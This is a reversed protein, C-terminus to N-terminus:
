ARNRLTPIYMCRVYKPRCSLMDPLSIKIFYYSQLTFIYVLTTLSFGPWDITPDKM